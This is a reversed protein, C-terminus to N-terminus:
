NRLRAYWRTTEPRVHLGVIVTQDLLPILNGHRLTISHRAHQVQQSAQRPDGRSLSRRTSQLCREMRSERAHEARLDLGIPLPDQHFARRPGASPLRVAHGERGTLVM